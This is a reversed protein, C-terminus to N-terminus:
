RNRMQVANIKPARLLTLNRTPRNQNGPLWPGAFGCNGLNSLKAEREAAVKASHVSAWLCGCMFQNFKAQGKPPWECSLKARRHGNM